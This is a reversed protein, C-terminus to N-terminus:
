LETGLKDNKYDHDHTGKDSVGGKQQQLTYQCTRKKEYEMSSLGHFLQCFAVRHLIPRTMGWPTTASFCLAQSRFMFSFFLFGRCRRSV